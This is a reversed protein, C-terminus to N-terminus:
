PCFDHGPIFTRGSVGAGLLSHQGRVARRAPRHPRPRPPHRRLRLDTRVRRPEAQASGPCRESRGRGPDGASPVVGSAPRHEDRGLSHAPAIRSADHRAEGVALPHDGSVWAVERRAAPAPGPARDRRSPEESTGLPGRALDDIFVAAGVIPGLEHSHVPDQRELCGSAGRREMPEAGEAFCRETHVAMDVGRGAM